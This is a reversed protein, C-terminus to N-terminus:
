FFSTYAAQRKILNAKKSDLCLGCFGAASGQLKLRKFAVMDLMFNDSITARESRSAVELM